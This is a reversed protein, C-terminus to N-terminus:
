ACLIADAIGISSLEDGYRKWRIHVEISRLM